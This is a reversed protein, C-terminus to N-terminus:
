KKLGAQWNVVVSITGGTADSSSSTAVMFRQGDTSPQYHYRPVQGNAFTVGEFLAKPAGAEFLSGGGKVPVAMLNRDPAVYFLEKGDRRWRPEAGGATSIQWKAGTAPIAQVYVQMAGSEDSMYAMWRGDPSVNAMTENFPSQLYVVPKHDGSLPLFWLDANTKESYQTYVLFKGDPSWDFIAANVGARILFEEKGAGSAPKQYFDYLLPTPRAIYAIRAGDPSWVPYMSHGPGFTFRSRAGRAIDQLWIDGSMTGPVVIGFAIRKEDPSLAATLIASSEVLGGQRKGTRDMWILEQDITRAGTRYALVGNESMSFASFGVNGAGAIREAVPFLDGNMRLGNPDFPQAMLTGQRVFVLHGTKGAAAPPAYAPNSTDALLRVPATGELSGAYIGSNEPKENLALYLFRSGDPLFEPSRHNNGAGPEVKTVPAPVGGAAPV